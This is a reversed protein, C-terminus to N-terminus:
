PQYVNLPQEDPLTQSTLEHRTVTYRPYSVPTLTGEVRLTRGAGADIQFTFTMNESLTIDQLGHEVFLSIISNTDIADTAHDALLADMMALKQQAQATAQYYSLTMTLNRESLAANSRASSFSLLSLAALALVVLIMLITSAGVGIRYEAKTNM